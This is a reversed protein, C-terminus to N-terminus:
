ASQSATKFFSQRAITLAADCAELADSKRREKVSVWSASFAAHGVECHLAGIRGIVGVGHRHLGVTQGLSQVLSNRFGILARSPGRGVIATGGKHIRHGRALVHIQPVVLPDSRQGNWRTECFVACPRVDNDGNLAAEDLMDIDCVAGGQDLHMVIVGFAGALRAINLAIRVSRRVQAADPRVASGVWVAAGRRVAGTSGSGGPFASAGSSWSTRM